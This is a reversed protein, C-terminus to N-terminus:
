RSALNAIGELGIEIARECTDTIHIYDQIDVFWSDNVYEDYIKEQIWV